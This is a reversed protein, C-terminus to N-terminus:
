RLRRLLLSSQKSDCVLGQVAVFCPHSFFRPIQRLTVLSPTVITQSHLTHLQGRRLSLSCSRDLAIGVICAIYISHLMRIIWYGGHQFQSYKTTPNQSLRFRQSNVDLSKSVNVVAPTRNCLALFIRLFHGFVQTSVLSHLWYRVLFEQEDCVSEFCLVWLATCNWIAIYKM